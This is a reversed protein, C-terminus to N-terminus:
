AEPADLVQRLREALEPEIRVLWSRDILGVGIM